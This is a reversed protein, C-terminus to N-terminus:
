EVKRELKEVRRYLEGTRTIALLFTALDVVIMTLLIKTIKEPENILLETLHAIMSDFMM